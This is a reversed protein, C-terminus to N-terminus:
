DEHCPTGEETQCVISTLIIDHGTEIRLDAQKCRPCVFSDISVECRCGCQRCVASPPVETIKLIAGEALTGQTLVEWAMQMADPVVQQLVGVEVAVEDVRTAEHEAAAALVSDILYGALSLEHM